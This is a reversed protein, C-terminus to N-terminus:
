NSKENNGKAITADGYKYAPPSKNVIKLLDCAM